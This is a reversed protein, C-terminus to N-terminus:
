PLPVRRPANPTRSPAKRALAARATRAACSQHWRRSRPHPDQLGAPRLDDESTIM